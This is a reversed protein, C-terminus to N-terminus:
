GKLFDIARPGECFLLDIISLNPIFGYREEFVQHYPPTKIPQLALVAPAALARSDNMNDYQESYEETFAIPITNGLISNLIELIKLNWEFLFDPKFDAFINIFHHEYFEFYPSRRYAAEISRWHLTRWNHEYSIRVDKIVTRKHKHLIPITLKLVGNAGYILCRNYYYQKHFNEHLEIITQGHGLMLKFYPVPPFYALPLVLATTNKINSVAESPEM